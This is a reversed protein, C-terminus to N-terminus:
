FWGSLTSVMQPMTHTLVSNHFFCTPITWKQKGTCSFCLFSGYSTLLMKELFPPCGHSLKKEYLLLFFPFIIYFEIQIFFKRQRLFDKTWQWRISHLELHFLVYSMCFLAFRMLSFAVIKYRLYLLRTCLKKYKFVIPTLIHLIHM